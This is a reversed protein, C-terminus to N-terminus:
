PTEQLQVTGPAGLIREIDAAAGYADALVRVHQAQAQLLVRQVEFVDLIGFKGYEYGKRTAEYVSRAAPIHGTELSNAQSRAVTLRQHASRLASALSASVAALEARAQETRQVTEDVRGQNRDFLPLPLSVGFVAQRRGFQEDNKSGVTIALDPMRRASEVRGLAVRRQLELRARAVGPARDLRALLVPLSASEPARSLKGEIPGLEAGSGGWLSALAERALDTDGRAQALEIEAGSLIIRARTEDVPSNKGATVRTAAASLGQKALAVTADALDLKAQAALVNYFATSTSARLDARMAALVARALEREAEAANVRSGRKGGLEVPQTLAITTTRTASHRDEVLASLEPNPMAGAQRVMGDQASVEHALARLSASRQMVQAQAAALTLPAGPPMQRAPEAQAALSILMLFCATPRPLVFKVM